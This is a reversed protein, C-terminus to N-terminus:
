AAWPFRAGATDGYVGAVGDRSVIRGSTRDVIILAPIGNVALASRVSSAAGFPVALPFSMGLAYERAAAADSDASVFVLVAGLRAAHSAAWKSLVPTFARCPPCWHASCYLAVFRADRLAADTEVTGDGETRTRDLLRPPLLTSLDVSSPPPTGPRLFFFVVLLVLLWVWSSSLDLFSSPSM